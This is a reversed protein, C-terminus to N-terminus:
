EFLASQKPKEAPTLGLHQYAHPTAMRGRPSRDLMGLQILFPEYVDEITGADEGTAASLTNLGVPGGQFKEIITQILNLDTRDLGLEDIGLAFLAKETITFSIHETHEDMEAFDRIRKLLRNAIRPTRRSCHALKQCAEPEIRYNLISSSRRIIQEIEDPSYFELKFIHGFRDRLPSSLLSYKTTAGILTFPPLNLRMTRASPGKGIMIDLAFDEMASYLMEEINSRLRHIEDIFLVDGPKLNSLIAALDGSKEIAPASTITLKAEMEAAIISALTTKGLGPPGYLLSHELSEGRKKAANLFVKLNEKLQSQGIYEDLTKPRLTNEFADTDTTRQVTSTM